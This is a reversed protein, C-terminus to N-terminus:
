LPNEELYDLFQDYTLAYLSIQIKEERTPYSVVVTAYDLFFM